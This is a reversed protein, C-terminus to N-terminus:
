VMYIYINKCVRCFENLISYDIGFALEKINEISKATSKYIRSASTNECVKEYEAHYNRKKGGFGFGGNGEIDYPIDTYILDVSKDPIKKIAEYCDVCYINNLEFEGLM